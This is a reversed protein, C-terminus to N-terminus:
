ATSRKTTGGSRITSTTSRFCHSTSPIRRSWTPSSPKIRSRGVSRQKCQTSRLRSRSAEVSRTSCWRSASILWTSIVSGRAAEHGMTRARHTPKPSAHQLAARAVQYQQCWHRFCSKAVVTQSGRGKEQYKDEKHLFEGLLAQRHEKERQLQRQQEPTPPNPATSASISQCESNSVNELKMKPIEGTPTLQDTHNRIDTKCNMSLSPRWGM